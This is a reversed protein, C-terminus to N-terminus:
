MNAAGWLGALSLRTRKLEQQLRKVKPKHRLWALRAVKAEGSPGISDILRGNIITDLQQLKHKAGVLVKFINETTGQPLQQYNQRERICREIEQLLIRTESADNMLPHLENSASHVTTAVELGKSVAGAIAISSAIVSLPDM